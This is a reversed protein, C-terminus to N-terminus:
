ECRFLFQTLICIMIGTKIKEIKQIGNKASSPLLFDLLQVSSKNPNKHVNHLCLSKRSVEIEFTKILSRQM